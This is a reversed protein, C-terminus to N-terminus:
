INLENTKNRKFFNRLWLLLTFGFFFLSIYTHNINRSKLIM